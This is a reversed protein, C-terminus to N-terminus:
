ALMSSATAHSPVLRVADENAGFPVSSASVREAMQNITEFRPITVAGAMGVPAAEARRFPVGGGGGDPGTPELGLKALAAQISSMASIDAVRGRWDILDARWAQVYRECLDPGIKRLSKLAWKVAEVLQDRNELPSAEARTTIAELFTRRAEIFLGWYERTAQEVALGDHLMAFLGEALVDGFEQWAARRPNTFPDYRLQTVEFGSKALRKEAAYDFFFLWDENYIDPFFGIDVAADVALAAGTVFVDQPAGTIRNAHCVASNDPYETVSLGAAAFSGLMDVTSRLESHSVDRIDDDLFFIYRWQMMRAVALGINRKISIDATYYHRAPPLEDRIAALRSFHFLEHSYGKPVDVVIANSYSRSALQRKADISRLERSCLILLWCGAARALTIAQDLNWQPRSAPVIIADLHLHERPVDGLKDEWALSNHTEHQRIEEAFPVLSTGTQCSPLPDAEATIM